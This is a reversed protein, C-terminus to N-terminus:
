DLFKMLLWTLLALVGVFMLILSVIAFNVLSSIEGVSRESRAAAMHERILNVNRINAKFTIDFLDGLIPIAGILSDLAVNSIMRLMVLKPMGLRAGEYVIYSSVLSGIADGVIPILGILSDVGLSISTGPINVASDLVRSLKDLSPLDAV